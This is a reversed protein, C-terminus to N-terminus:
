LRARQLHATCYRRGITAPARCFLTRWDGPAEAGGLPWVCEGRKHFALAKPAAGPPLPLDMDPLPLRRFKPERARRIKPSQDQEKASVKPGLSRVAGQLGLRNRKSIVANKSVGLLIASEAASLGVAYHRRLLAVRERTWGHAANLYDPGSM